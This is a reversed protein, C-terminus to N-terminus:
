NTVIYRLVHRENGNQVLVQYCGAVGEAQWTLQDVGEATLTRVLRGSIDYITVTTACTPNLRLLRQTEKPHVLTPELIPPANSPSGGCSVLQSRLDCGVKWGEKIVGKAEAYYSGTGVLSKGLTLYSGHGVISDPVDEGELYKYWTVTEPEFSYGQAQISRMDLLILWNYLIEVPLSYADCDQEFIAIFNLDATVEVTRPNDTNGDQWHDFKWGDLATATIRVSTGCSVTKQEAMVSAACLLLIYIAWRRM